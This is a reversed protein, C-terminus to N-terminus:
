TQPSPHFLNILARADLTTVAWSPRRPVRRATRGIMLILFVFRFCFVSRIWLVASHSFPCVSLCRCVACITGRRLSTSPFLPLPSHRIV